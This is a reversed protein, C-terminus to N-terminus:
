KVAPHCLLVLNSFMTDFSLARRFEVTADDLDRDPKPAACFHGAGLAATYFAWVLQSATDSDIKLVTTFMDAQAELVQQYSTLMDHFTDDPLNLDFHDHAHHMLPILLDDQRLTQAYSTCLDNYSVATQLAQEFRQTWADLSKLFLAAVIEHRTRFYLYLTGKAIGCAESLANMSMQELGDRRALVEATQLIFEGKNIKETPTEARSIKTM